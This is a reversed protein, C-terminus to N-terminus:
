LHTHGDLFTPLEFTYLAASKMRLEDTPGRHNEQNDRGPVQRDPSRPQLGVSRGGRRRVAWHHVGVAVRVEVGRAGARHEQGPEDISGVGPQFGDISCILMCYTSLLFSFCLRLSSQEASGAFQANLMITGGVALGAMQGAIISM